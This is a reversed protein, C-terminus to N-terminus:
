VDRLLQTLTKNSAEVLKTPADSSIFLQIIRFPFEM